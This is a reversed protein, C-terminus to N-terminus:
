QPTSDRRASDSRTASGKTASTDRNRRVTVDWKVTVGKGVSVSDSRTVSTDTDALEDAATESVRFRMTRMVRVIDARNRRVLEVNQQPTGALAAPRTPAAQRPAARAGGSPVPRTVTPPGPPGAGPAAAPSPPRAPTAAKSGPDSAAAAVLAQDLAVTTLVYDRASIGARSLAERARPDSELYEVARRIDPEGLRMPDIRPPAPLGPIADLAQQAAVWRQYRDPTVEYNLATVEGAATDSEGGSDGRGGCGGVAILAMLAVGSRLRKSGWHVRM